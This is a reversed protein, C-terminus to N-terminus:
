CQTTAMKKLRDIQELPWISDNTLSEMQLRVSHLAATSWIKVLFFDIM